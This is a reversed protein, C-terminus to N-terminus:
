NPPIEFFIQQGRHDSALNTFLETHVKSFRQHIWVHDIDYLPLWSIWTGRWGYSFRSALQYGRESFAEFGLSRGLANFDGTIIDFPQGQAQRAVIAEAMDTLMPTRSRPLLARSFAIFKNSMNREGDVLLLHLPHDKVRVLIEMARGRRIEIFHEFTLPWRSCIALPNDSTEEYLILYPGLQKVLGRLRNKSPPESLVLIDPNRQYIDQVMSEWHHKRDGGGHVNWHLLSVQIRPDPFAHLTGTMYLSERIVLGIGLLTLGFRIPLSHGKQLLDLLISWLGLPLLPIYMLLAWEVTPDRIIQGLGALIIFFITITTFLIKFIKKLLTLM